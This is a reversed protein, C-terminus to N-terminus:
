TAKQGIHVTAIGMTLRQWKIQKFGAKRMTAAFKDPTPFNIVSAPLYDYAKLHKSFFAGIIPLIKSFYFLYLSLLTKNAPTALELVALKGGPKLCKLFSTLASKRDMINRIGFAITIADFSNPSFPLHLANGAILQVNPGPNAQLLKMKALKLMEPAFDAGVILERNATRSLIELLVDGTGCAVDLVSANDPLDLATIMTRRWYIDQRLSLLRNLFDYRPAISNFMEKIFDLEM